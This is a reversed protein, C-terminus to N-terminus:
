LKGSIGTLMVPLWSQKPERLNNLNVPIRQFFRGRARRAKAKVHRMKTKESATLQENVRGARSQERRLLPHIAAFFTQGPPATEISKIIAPSAVDTANKLRLGLSLLFSSEHGVVYGRELAGAL